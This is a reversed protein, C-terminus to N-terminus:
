RVMKREAVIPPQGRSVRTINFNRCPNMVLIKRKGRSAVFNTASTRARSGGALRYPQDHPRREVAGNAYQNELFISIEFQKGFELKSLAQFLFTHGEVSFRLTPPEVGGRPVMERIM